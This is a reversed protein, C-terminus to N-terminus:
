STCSTHQRFGTYESVDVLLFVNRFDSVHCRRFAGTIYCDGLLDWMVIVNVAELKSESLSIIELVGVVVPKEGPVVGDVVAWLWSDLM